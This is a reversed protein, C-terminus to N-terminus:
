YGICRSKNGTLVEAPPVTESPGFGPPRGRGKLEPGLPTNCLKGRLHDQRHSTTPSSESPFLVMSKAGCSQSITSTFDCSMSREPAHTLGTQSHECPRERAEGGGTGAERPHCHPRSCLGLLAGCLTSIGLSGCSSGRDLDDQATSLGLIPQVPKRENARKIGFQDPAKM